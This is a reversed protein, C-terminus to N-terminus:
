NISIEYNILRLLATTEIKIKVIDNIAINAYQMGSIPIIIDGEEDLIKVVVCYMIESIGASVDYKELVIADKIKINTYYSDIFFVIFTVILITVLYIIGYHKTSWEIIGM